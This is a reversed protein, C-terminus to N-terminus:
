KNMDGADVMDSDANENKVFDGESQSNGNTSCQKQITTLDDVMEQIFDPDEEQQRALGLAKNLYSQASELDQQLKYCMGLLYYVDVVKKFRTTLMRFLISNDNYVKDDEDLLLQLVNEADCLMNLELLIKATSLRFEFTTSIGEKESHEKNMLLVVRSMCTKADETKKQSIKFSGTTQLLEIHSNSKDFHSAQRLARECIKEADKEFSFM